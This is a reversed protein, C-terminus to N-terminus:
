RLRLAGITGPAPPAPPAAPAATVATAAPMPHLPASSMAPEPKKLHEDHHILKFADGAADERGLTKKKLDLMQRMKSKNVSLLM